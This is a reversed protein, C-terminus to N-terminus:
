NVTEVLVASTSGGFNTSGAYVATISHTGRSLGKTSFTAAGAKLTATGLTTGGDLFTVSGGPTGAGSAVTATFTVSMKFKSPNHSSTLSTTTAARAIVLTGTANAAQYNPNALAAVVSYSGANTPATASGNYTVTVGSLGPPNTTVTAAKPSGDYTQNLNGLTLTATAKTITLTGNVYTISYDPSTQGSCTIPYSGAPSAPTATTACSLAGGLSGVTDGNVFGSYSATLPPVAGGYVMSQNNATVTLTAKAINISVSAVATNYDATDTPTFTVSLTQGNGARLVTGSPPTYVFSGPVAATANLQAAGLPTGYVIGAPNAWTIVPTAKGISFSQPVDPAANYNSGGPQSATVTCSGAGTITVTTGAITCTGSTTFGVPLGSSATASVTFPPDGYTKGALPGFSITQSTGAGQPTLLVAFTAGGLYTGFGVIQGTDNIGTAQTLV